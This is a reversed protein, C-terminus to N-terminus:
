AKQKSAGLIDGDDDEDDSFQLNALREQMSLGENRDAYRSHAEKPLSEPTAVAGENGCGRSVGGRPTGVPSSDASSGGAEADAEFGFATAELRSPTSMEVVTGEDQGAAKGRNDQGNPLAARSDADTSLDFLNGKVPRDVVEEVANSNDVARPPTTNKSHDGNEVSRPSDNWKATGVADGIAAHGNGRAAMAMATQFAEFWRSAEVTSSCLLEMTRAPKSLMLTVTNVERDLKSVSGLRKLFSSSVRSARSAESVNDGRDM